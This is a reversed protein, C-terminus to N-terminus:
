LSLLFGLLISSLSENYYCFLYTAILFELNHKDNKFNANLALTLTTLTVLRSVRM